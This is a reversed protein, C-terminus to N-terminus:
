VYYYKGMVKLKIKNSERNAIINKLVFLSGYAEVAKSVDKIGDDWKPYSVYYGHMIADEELEKGAKDRDPVVIVEKGLANIVDAQNQSIRNSGVSIGSIALADYEGETVIVFKRDENQNDLGSIFDTDHKKIIKSKADTIVHEALRAHWGMLQGKYTLPLIARNYLQYEKNKSWMWDAKDLLNRSDLYQAVKIARHDHLCEALPLSNEPFTVPKWDPTYIKKPPILPTIFSKHEHERMVELTMRYIEFEPINIGKLLQKFKLSFHDGSAWKTHFKCNFCHYRVSDDTFQMGGRRKTDPRPQGNEVCLPCNFSIWGNGGIRQSPIYTRIIDLVLSM